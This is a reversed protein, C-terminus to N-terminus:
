KKIKLIKLFNKQWYRASRVHAKRARNSDKDIPGRVIIRIMRERPPLPPPPPPLERGQKEEKRDEPPSRPREHHRDEM